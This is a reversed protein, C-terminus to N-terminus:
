AAKEMWHHPINAEIFGDEVVQFGLREYFPIAYDQAGLRLTHCEPSTTKIDAIIAKLLELGVGKGRWPKLVAVREIKAIGPKYVRWRATACAVDGDRALMHRCSEEHEDIELEPPCNQEIIFVSTRIYTCWAYDHKNQVLQFNLPM